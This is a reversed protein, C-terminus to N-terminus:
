NADYYQIHHSIYQDSLTITRVWKKPAYYKSNDDVKLSTVEMHSSAWNQIEFDVQVPGTGQRLTTPTIPSARAVRAFLIMETATTELFEKIGWKVCCPNNHQSSSGVGGTTKTTTPAKIFEVAQGSPISNQKNSGFLFTANVADSPCACTIVVNTAVAGAPLESRIKIVVDQNYPTLQEVFCFVKFPLQVSERCTYNMICAEGEPPVFKLLRFNDWDCTRVCRHFNHHSLCVLGFNPPKNNRQKNNYSSAYDSELVLHHTLGLHVEPSGILFSKLKIAGVAQQYTVDSRTKDAHTGFSVSLRELVDVFVESSQAASATTGLGVISRSDTGTTTAPHSFNSPVIQSLTQWAARQRSKVLNPTEHVFPKLYGSTTSQVVGADIIEDLLEYVLNQNKRIAAESLTGLFDAFTNGLANLFELVFSPSINETSYALFLIGNRRIFMAHANGSPLAIVPPSDPERLVYSAFEEVINYVVRQPVYTKRLIVECRSSMLIVEGIELTVNARAHSSFYDVTAVGTNSQRRRCTSDDNDFLEARLSSPLPFLSKLTDADM